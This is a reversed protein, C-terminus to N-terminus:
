WNMEAIQSFSPCSNPIVIIFNCKRGQRSTARFDRSWCWCWTDFEAALNCCHRCPAWHLPLPILESSILLGGASTWSIEGSESVCSLKSISFLHNSIHCVSFVRWKSSIDSNVLTLSILRMPLRSCISIRFVLSRSRHRMCGSRAFLTKSWKILSLEDICAMRTDPWCILNLTSKM